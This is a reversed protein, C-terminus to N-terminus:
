NLFGMAIQNEKLVKVQERLEHIARANMVQINLLNAQLEIIRKTELSAEDTQENFVLTVTKSRCDHDYLVHIIEAYIAGISDLNFDGGVPTAVVHEFVRYMRDTAMERVHSETSTGKTTTFHSQIATICKLIVDLDVPFSLFRDVVKHAGNQKDVVMQRVPRSVDNSREFRSHYLIDELKAGTCLMALIIDNIFGHHELLHDKVRVIAEFRVEMQNTKVDSIDISNDPDRKGFARNILTMFNHVTSKNDYLTELISKIRTGLAQIDGLECETTEPSQIINAIYRCLAKGVSKTYPCQGQPIDALLPRYRGTSRRNM